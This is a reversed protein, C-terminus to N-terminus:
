SQLVLGQGKALRTDPPVTQHSILGDVIRLYAEQRSSWANAAAYVSANAIMGARKQDNNLVEILADALEEVNGSEFFQAVTSDFYFQDIKTRSIVVPVGVAMFEM